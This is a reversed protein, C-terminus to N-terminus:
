LEFKLGSYVFFTSSTTKNVLETSKQLNNLGGYEYKGGLLAGMFDNFMYAGSLNGTLGLDFNKVAFYTTEDQSILFGFYPGLNVDIRVKGIEVGFYLLLPINIYNLSTSTGSTTKFGKSSYQAGTTIGFGLFNLDIIAGISPGLKTSTNQLQQTNSDVQNLENTTKSIDLGLQIDVDLYFLANKKKIIREAEKLHAKNEKSAPTLRLRGEWDQSKAPLSFLCITFFLLLSKILLNKSEM